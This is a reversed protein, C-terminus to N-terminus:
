SGGCAILQQDLNSKTELRRQAFSVYHGPRKIRGSFEQQRAKSSVLEGEQQFPACVLVLHQPCRFSGV